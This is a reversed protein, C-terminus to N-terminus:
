EGTSLFDQCERYRCKCYWCMYVTGASVTSTHITGANMTGASVTDAKMTGANVARREQHRWARNHVGNKPTRRKQYIGDNRTCAM